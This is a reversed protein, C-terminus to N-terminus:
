YYEKKEDKQEEEICVSNLSPRRSVQASSALSTRRSKLPLEAWPRLNTEVTYIYIIVCIIGAAAAGYFMMQWQEPEDDGAVFYKIIPLVTLVISYLFSIMTMIKATYPGCSISVSKFYGVSNFASAVIAIFYLGQAINVSETPITALGIYCFSM